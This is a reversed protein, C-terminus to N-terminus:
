LGKRSAPEDDVVLIRHDKMRDTHGFRESAASSGIAESAASSEPRSGGPPTANSAETYGLPSKSMINRAERAGAERPRAWRPFRAVDSGDMRAGGPAGGYARLAGPRDVDDRGSRRELRGGLASRSVALVDDDKDPENSGRTTPPTTMTTRTRRLRRSCWPTRGFRSDMWESARSAW